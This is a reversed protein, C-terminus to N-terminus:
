TALTLTAPEFGTEHELMRAAGGRLQTPPATTNPIRKRLRLRRRHARHETRVPGPDIRLGRVCPRWGRRPGRPRPGPPDAGPERPGAARGRLPPQPWGPPGPDRLYAPGRPAEAAPRRAEPRPAGRHVAPLAAAARLAGRAGGGRGPAGRSRRRTWADVIAVESDERRAVRAILRGVGNAPNRAILGDRAALNLVRRLRRGPGPGSVRDFAPSSRPGSVSVGGGGLVAARSRRPARPARGPDRAPHVCPGLKERLPHVGAREGDM